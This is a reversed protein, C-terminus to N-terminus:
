PTGGVANGQCVWWLAPAGWVTLVGPSGAPLVRSRGTRACSSRRVHRPEGVACLGVVARSYRQRRCPRGSTILADVGQVLAIERSLLGARVGGTLAEDDGERVGVCSEPGNHSAVGEVYLVEM